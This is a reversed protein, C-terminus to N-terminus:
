VACLSCLPSLSLRSKLSSCGVLAQCGAATPRSRQQTKEPGHHVQQKRAARRRQYLGGTGDNSHPPKLIQTCLSSSSSPLLLLLLILTLHNAESSSSLPALTPYRVALSVCRSEIRQGRDIFGVYNLVLDADTKSRIYFECTDLHAPGPKFFWNLGEVGPWKMVVQGDKTLEVQNGETMGFYIDSDQTMIPQLSGQGAIDVLEWTGALESPNERWFESTLNRRLSQEWQVFNLLVDENQPVKDSRASIESLCLEVVRHFANTYTDYLRLPPAGPFGVSGVGGEVVSEGLVSSSKEIEAGSILKATATLGKVLLSSLAKLYLVEQANEDGKCWDRAFSVARADITAALRDKEKRGGYLVARSVCNSAANLEKTRTELPTALDVISLCINTEMPIPRGNGGTGKSGSGSGSGDVFRCGAGKLLTLIGKYGRDYIGGLVEETTEGTTLIKELWGVYVLATKIDNAGGDTNCAVDDSGGNAISEGSELLAVPRRSNDPIESLDMYCPSDELAKRYNEFSALTTAIGEEDGIVLAKFVDNTLENLLKSRSPGSLAGDTSRLCFNILGLYDTSALSVEFSSGSPSSPPTPGGGGQPSASSLSQKPRVPRPTTATMRVSGLHGRRTGGRLLALSLSSVLAAGALVRALRFLRM